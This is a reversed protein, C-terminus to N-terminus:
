PNVLNPDTIRAVGPIDSVLNRQKYVNAHDGNAQAVSAGTLALAATAVLVGLRRGLTPGGAGSRRRGSPPSLPRIAPM